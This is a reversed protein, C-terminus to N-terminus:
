RHELLHETPCVPQRLLVLRRRAARVHWIRQEEGVGDREFPRPPLRRPPAELVPQTQHLGLAPVAREVPRDISAVPAGAVLAHWRGLDQAVEATGIVGRAAPEAPPHQRIPTEPAQIPLARQRDRLIEEFDVEAVHKSQGAALGIQEVWAPDVGTVRQPQEQHQKAPGGKQCGLLAPGKMRNGQFLPPPPLLLYGAVQRANDEVLYKGDEGVRQGPM